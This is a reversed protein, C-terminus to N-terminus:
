VQMRFQRVRKRVTATRYMLQQQARSASSNADNREEQLSLRCHQQAVGRGSLAKVLFL